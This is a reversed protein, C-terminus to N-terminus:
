RWIKSLLGCSLCLNVPPEAQMCCRTPQQPSGIALGRAHFWSLGKRNPCCKVVVVEILGSRLCYKSHSTTTQLPLARDVLKYGHAQKVLTPMKSRCAAERTMQNSVRSLNLYPAIWRWVRQIYIRDRSINNWRKGSVKGGIRAKILRTYHRSIKGLRIGFVDGVKATFTTQRQSGGFLKDDTHSSTIRVHRM